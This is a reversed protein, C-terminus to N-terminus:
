KGACRSGARSKKPVNAKSAGGSRTSSYPRSLVNLDEKTIKNAGIARNVEHTNEDLLWPKEVYMEACEMCMKKRWTDLKLPGPVEELDGPTVAFCYDCIM